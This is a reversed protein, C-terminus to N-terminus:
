QHLGQKLTVRWTKFNFRFEFHGLLFKFHSCWLATWQPVLGLRTELQTDLQTALTTPQFHRPMQDINWHSRFGVAVSTALGTYFSPGTPDIGM